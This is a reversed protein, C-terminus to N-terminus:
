LSLFPIVIPHDYIWIEVEIDVETEIEVGIQSLAHSSCCLPMHISLLIYFSLPTNM